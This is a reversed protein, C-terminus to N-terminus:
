STGIRWLIEPLTALDPASSTIWAALAVARQPMEVMGLGVPRSTWCIEGSAATGTGIAAVCGRACPGLCGTSVLVSRPRRRVAQRLLAGTGDADASSVHLDRLAQCRRGACVAVVLVPEAATGATVPLRRQWPRDRRPLAAEDAAGRGSPQEPVAGSGTVLM